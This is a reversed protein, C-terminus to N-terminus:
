LKQNTTRKQKQESLFVSVRLSSCVSSFQYRREGADSHCVSSWYEDLIAAQDDRSVDIHNARFIDKATGRV